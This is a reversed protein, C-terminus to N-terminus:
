NSAGDWLVVRKGERRLRDRVFRPRSSLGRKLAGAWARSDSRQGIAGGCTQTQM